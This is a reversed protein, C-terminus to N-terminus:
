SEAGDALAVGNADIVAVVRAGDSPQGDFITVRRAGQDDIASCAKLLASPLGRTGDSMETKRESTWKIVYWHHPSLATRFM